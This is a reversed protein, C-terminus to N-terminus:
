KIIIYFFANTSNCLKSALTCFHSVPYFPARSITNKVFHAFNKSYIKVFYLYPPEHKVPSYMGFDFFNLFKIKICKSASLTPTSTSAMSLTIHVIFKNYLCGTWSCKTKLFFYNSILLLSIRFADFTCGKKDFLM